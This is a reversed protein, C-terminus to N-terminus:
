SEWAEVTRRSVGLMEAFTRQTMGLSLRMEQINVTPLARKRAITEASAKGRKYALAEELGEMVGSFFDVDKFNAEIEEMSLSSKFIPESVSIVGESNGRHNQSKQEATLNEQVNKPYAFLLYLHERELVDGYIVRAGGSKGRGGLAISMKRAGGTGEIVDGLQPNQLLVEELRPLVDDGLGM